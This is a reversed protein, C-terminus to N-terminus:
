DQAGCVQAHSMEDIGSIIEEMFGLERNDEVVGGGESRCGGGSLAPPPSPLDMEEEQWARSKSAAGDVPQNNAGVYLGRRGPSKGPSGAALSM